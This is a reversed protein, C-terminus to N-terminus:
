FFFGVGVSVEDISVFDIGNRFYIGVFLENQLVRKIFEKAKEEIKLLWKVFKQLWRDKEFVFFFGFVGM